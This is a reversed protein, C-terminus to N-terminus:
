RKRKGRSAQLRDDLGHPDCGLAQAADWLWELSPNRRGNEVDSWYQVAVKGPMRAAAEAQTLRARQRAARLRDAPTM